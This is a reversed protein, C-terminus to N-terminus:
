EQNSDPYGLLTQADKKKFSAKKKYPPISLFFFPFHFSPIHFIGQLTKAKCPIKKLYIPM